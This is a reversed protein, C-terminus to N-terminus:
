RVSARGLAFARRNLERTAVPCAGEIAELLLGPEVPFRGTAALAGLLVINLVQPSGAQEALASADLARVAAVRSRMKDLIEDLPPYGNRAVAAASPPLARTNTLLCGEPHLKVIARLAELPETALLVDATGDAVISSAGGIVVTATVSGGRQAMGHLQGAVVPLGARHAALALFRAASLVGQGGVGAVVLRLGSM